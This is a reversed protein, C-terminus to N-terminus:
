AKFKRGGRLRDARPAARPRSSRDSPTSSRMRSSAPRSSAGPGQMRARRRTLQANLAITSEDTALILSCAHGASRAVLNGRRADRPRACHPTLFALAAAIASCSDLSERRVSISAAPTQLRESLASSGGRSRCAAASCRTCRRVRLLLASARTGSSSKRPM